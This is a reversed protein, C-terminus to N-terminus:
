GRWRANRSVAAIVERGMAEADEAADLLARAKALADKDHIEFSNDYIRPVPQQM